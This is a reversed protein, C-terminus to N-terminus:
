SFRGGREWPGPVVLGKNKVLRIATLATANGLQSEVGLPNVSPRLYGADWLAAPKPHPTRDRVYITSKQVRSMGTAVPDGGGSAGPPGM